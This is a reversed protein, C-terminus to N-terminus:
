PVRSQVILLPAVQLFKKIGLFVITRTVPIWKLSKVNSLIPLALRFASVRGPKQANFKRFMLEIFRLSDTLIQYHTRKFFEPSFLENFSNFYYMGPSTPFKFTQLNRTREIKLCDQRPRSQKKQTSPNSHKLVSQMANYPVM